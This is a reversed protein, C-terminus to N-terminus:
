KHKKLNESIQKPNIYQIYVKKISLNRIILKEKLKNLDSDYEIIQNDLVAIFNNKYQNRIFDMNEKLWQKQSKYSISKRLTDEKKIVKYIQDIFLIPSCIFGVIIYVILSIPYDLQFIDILIAGITSTIACYAFFKIWFKCTTIAL